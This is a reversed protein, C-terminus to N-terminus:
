VGGLLSEGFGRLDKLLAEHIKDKDYLTKRFHPSELAKQDSKGQGESTKSKQRKREERKLLAREHAEETKWIERADQKIVNRLVKEERLPVKYFDENHHNRDQIRIKIEDYRNTFHKQFFSAPEGEQGQFVEEERKFALSCKKLDEQTLQKELHWFSKTEDYSVYFRLNETQRTLAVYGLNQNIRPSHLIYADKVTKGQAKYITSAYGLRLGSYASPNFIIKGGLDSEVIFQDEQAHTLTGFSGAYVKLARETSGFQVRDGVSFGIRGREGDVLFEEKSVRGVAQRVRHIAQNLTDVDINRHALIMRIKQSSPDEQDGGKGKELSKEYDAEEGRLWDEVLRSLSEEKSEDWLIRKHARLLSLAEHVDGQSFRESVEKQWLIKQRRVSKLECSGFRDGLYSFFGGRSIGHLQRSDGFFIIKSSTERAVKLLEGLASNSVMAAEDVMFVGRSPVKIRDNLYQFLFGQVTYANKFGGKELDKAVLHTPALGFVSVGGEEYAERIGQMLYSKGTGARGEIIKIGSDRQLAYWFADRQEKSFKFEKEIGGGEIVLIGKKQVRLAHRLSREEEERVKQTTYFIRPTEDEKVAESSGLVKSVSVESGELADFDDVGEFLDQPYLRLLNESRLIEAKIEGRKKEEEVHKELYADIEREEFVSKIKSFHDIIFEPILSLDENADMLHAVEQVRENQHRRMRVPGLHKQAIIGIEDVRLDYGKEKFFANQLDRWMKGWLVGEIVFGKRVQADLDRAKKLDFTKGDPSFRRTTVLIHAHWNKDIHEHLEEDVEDSFTRDIKKHPEHIDFEVALGKDVFFQKCFRRTLEVRDEHTVVRDWPLALVFEKAVQSNKRNEFKEVTNWLVEADLFKLDVGEPLMIEHHVNGGRSGFSYLIGTQEDKIKDRKNYAAKCCANKGESRKVYEIRAFQIAM